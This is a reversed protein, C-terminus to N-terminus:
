IIPKHLKEALQQTALDLSHQNQKIASKFDSGWTFKKDFFKYVM